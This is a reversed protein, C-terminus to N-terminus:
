PVLIVCPNTEGQTSDAREYFQTTYFSLHSYLHQTTNQKQKDISFIVVVYYSENM